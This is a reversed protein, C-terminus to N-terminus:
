CGPNSRWLLLDLRRHSLRPQRQRLRQIAHRGSRSWAGTAVLWQHRSCCRPQRSRRRSRPSRRRKRRSPPGWRSSRRALRVDPRSPPLPRRTTAQLGARHRACCRSSRHRSLGVSCCWLLPSPWNDFWAGGQIRWRERGCVNAGICARRGYSFRHPNPLTSAREARCALPPWHFKPPRERGSGAGPAAGPAGRTVAYGGRSVTQGM